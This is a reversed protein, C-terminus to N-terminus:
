PIISRAVEPYACALGLYMLELRPLVDSHPKQKPMQYQWHFFRSVWRFSDDEDSRLIADPDVAQLDCVMGSATFVEGKHYWITPCLWNIVDRRPVNVLTGIAVSLQHMVSADRYAEMQPLYFAAEAGGNDNAVPRVLTAALAKSFATNDNAPIALPLAPRQVYKHHFTPIHTM